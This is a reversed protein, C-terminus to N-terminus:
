LGYTFRKYLDPIFTRRVYVGTPCYKELKQTMIM